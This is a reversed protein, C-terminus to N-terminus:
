REDYPVQASEEQRDGPPGTYDTNNRDEEAWGRTVGVRATCRVAAM